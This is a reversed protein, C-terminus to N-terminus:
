DVEVGQIVHISSCDLLFRLGVDFSKDGLMINKVPFKEMSNKLAEFEAKNNDAELIDLYYKGFEHNPDLKISSRLSSKSSKENGLARYVLAKEFHLRARVRVLVSLMDSESNVEEGVVDCKIVKGRSHDSMEALCSRLSQDLYLLSTDYDKNLFHSKALLFKLVVENQKGERQKRKGGQRRGLSLEQCLSLSEAVNGVILLALAAEQKVESIDISEIAVGESSVLAIADLFKEAADYYEEMKFCKRAWTVLSEELSIQMFPFLVKIIRGVFDLPCVAEGVGRQKQLISSIINWIELEKNFKGMKEFSSAVGLYARVNEGEGKIVEGFSSLAGQVRGEELLFEGRLLLGLRTVVDPQRTMSASAVLRDISDALKLKNGQKHNVAVDFLKSLFEHGPSPDHVVPDGINNTVMEIVKRLVPACSTTVAQGTNSPHVIDIKLVEHPSLDGLGKGLLTGQVDGLYRGVKECWALFEKALVMDSTLSIVLLSIIDMVTEMSSSSLQNLLGPSLFLALLPLVSEQDPLVLHPLHYSIVRTLTLHITNRLHTTPSSWSLALLNFSVTLEIDPLMAITPLSHLDTLLQELTQSLHALDSSSSLGSVAENNIKVWSSRMAPHFEPPSM